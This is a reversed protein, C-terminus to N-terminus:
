AVFLMMGFIAFVLLPFVETHERRLREAERELPSGPVTSASAAFASQGGGLQREAFLATGGLGVILLLSWFVYTPGDLALLGEATLRMEGKVWDLITLGLAVILGVATLATQTLYRWSRPVVAELVIGLCGVGLLVILPSLLAWEITATPLELLTTM